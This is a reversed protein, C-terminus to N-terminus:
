VRAAPLPSPPPPSPNFHRAIQIPQLLGGYSFRYTAHIMHFPTQLDGLATQLLKIVIRIFKTHDMLDLDCQSELLKKLVSTIHDMSLRGGFILIVRISAKPCLSLKGGREELNGIEVFFDVIVQAAVEKDIDRFRSM